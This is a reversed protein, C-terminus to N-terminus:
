SQREWLGVHGSQLTLAKHARIAEILSDRWPGNACRYRTGAFAFTRITLPITAIRAHHRLALLNSLWEVADHAEIYELELDARIM